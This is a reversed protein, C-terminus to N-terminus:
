EGAEVKTVAEIGATIAELTHDGSWVYQPILTMKEVIKYRDGINSTLLGNLHVLPVVADEGSQGVIDIAYKEQNSLRSFAEMVLIAAELSRVLRGDFQNRYM